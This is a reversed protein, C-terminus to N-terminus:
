RSTFAVPAGPVDKALDLELLIDEEEQVKAGITFAGSSVCEVTAAGSKALKRNEKQAFTDHLYFTVPTGDTLPKTTDTSVVSATIVFLDGSGPFPKVVAFLKRSRAVPRGGFQNKNPDEPDSPLSNSSRPVAAPSVFEGRDPAAAVSHSVAEPTELNGPAVERPRGIGSSLAAAFAEAHEDVKVAVEKGQHDLAAIKQEIQQRFNFEVGGVKLSQMLNAVWPLSWPATALAILGIVTPDVKPGLLDRAALSLCLLAFFLRWAKERLGPSAKVSPSM